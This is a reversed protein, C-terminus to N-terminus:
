ATPDYSSLSNVYFKITHHIINSYTEGNYTIKVDYFRYIGWEGFLNVQHKEAKSYSSYLNNFYSLIPGGVPCEKLTNNATDVQGYVNSKFNTYTVIKSLTVEYSASSGEDPYKTCDTYTPIYAKKAYALPDSSPFNSSSTLSTQWYTSGTEIISLLKRTYNISISRKIEEDYSSAITLTAPISFPKLCTLTIKGAGVDAEAKLFDNIELESEEDFSLDLTVSQNSGSPNVSYAFVRSKETSSALALRIVKRTEAPSASEAPENGACSFCLLPLALLFYSRKM